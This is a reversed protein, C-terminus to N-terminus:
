QVSFSRSIAADSPLRYRTHRVASRRRRGATGASTNTAKLGSSSTNPSPPKWLSKRIMSATSAPIRSSILARGAPPAAAITTAAPIFAVARTIRGKATSPLESRRRASSPATTGPAASTATLKATNPVTTGDSPGWVVSTEGSPASLRSPRMSPNPPAVAPMCTM